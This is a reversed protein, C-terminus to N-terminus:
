HLILKNNEGTPDTTREHDIQSQIRKLFTAIMASIDNPHHKEPHDLVQILELGLYHQPTRAIICLIECAKAASDLSLPDLVNLSLEERLSELSRKADLEAQYHFLNMKFGHQSPSLYYYAKTSQM